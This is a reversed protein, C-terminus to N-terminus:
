NLSQEIFEIFAKEGQNDNKFVGSDKLAKSFVIGAQKQIFPLVDEQNNYTAKLENLWEQHKQLRGDIPEEEHSLLVKGILEFENKLRPPLIGMGMAEILGINEKKIHHCDAHPHFVGDPYQHNIYNSRLILDFVYKTGDKRAIPTLTHHIDMPSNFLLLQPNQYSQWKVLIHTALKIIKDKSESILRITSLPWILRSVTVEDQQKMIIAKAKEIPFHHRGAQFHEHNLISGGVIPLGANSGVFYEPFLDLFDLLKLFTTGDVIMPKHEKHLVISHENFYSYPSYQFYWPENNLTIPIIRMNSRSDYSIHGHYGENEICLQCKPYSMSKHNKQLAILKPDKEPKSLNITMELEGYEVSEKWIVNQAIRKTQIYNCDKCLQYLYNTALTPSKKYLNHFREIITQPKEMIIDMVLAKFNDMTMIDNSTIIQSHFAFLAVDDLMLELERPQVDIQSFEKRNFLSILANANYQYDYESMLGKQLGYNLLENIHYNIDM